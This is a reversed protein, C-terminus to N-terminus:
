QNNELPSMFCVHGVMPQFVHHNVEDVHLDGSHVKKNTQVGVGIKFVGSTKGINLIHNKLTLGVVKICLENQKNKIPFFIQVEGKEKSKSKDMINKLEGGVFKLQTVLTMVITVSSRSSKM